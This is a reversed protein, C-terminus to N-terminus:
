VKDFTIEIMKVPPDVEAANTAKDAAVLLSVEEVDPDEEPSPPAAFIHTDRQIVVFFLKYYSM